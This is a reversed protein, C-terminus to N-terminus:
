GVLLVVKGVTRREELARQAEAVAALPYTQGVVIRLRGEQYWQVLDAHGVEGLGPRQLIRPLYFGLVALNQAVLRWPELPSPYGSSRGYTVLRGFTALCRMSQLLVEGGVGDMVVDVGRGDTLDKVRAVIDEHTYDITADAGHAAALARKEATSATGYVAGAGLCKAVQVAMLGVGGAAAHVLVREGPELRATTRQAHYATLGQIPLAAAQPYDMGEPIPFLLQPLTLAYETMAGRALGTVRQGVRLGEVGDGLAAVEGAMELGATAPLRVPDVYKGQRQLVDAFNLGAARVRVLVMGPRVEPTPVDELRLVEPGGHEYFRVAQM